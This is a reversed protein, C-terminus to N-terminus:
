ADVGTYCYVRTIRRKFDSFGVSEPLRVLPKELGVLLRERPLEGVERPEGGDPLDVLEDLPRVQHPSVGAHQPSTPALFSAAPTGTPPAPQPHPGCCCASM